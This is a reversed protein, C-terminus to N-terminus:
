GVRPGLDEALRHALERAEEFGVVEHEDEGVMVTFRRAGHSWVTVKGRERLLTLFPGASSTQWPESDRDLM